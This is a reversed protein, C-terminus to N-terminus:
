ESRGPGASGADPLGSLELSIDMATVSHTLAGISVFDPELEAVARLNEDTIGGSVEIEPPSDVSRALAIADRMQELTMNDLMIRDAGAGMVSAVEDISRAEVEVVLDPHSSRAASVAQAIGGAAEIHNDKILIMDWLGMRHNTAGGVKVAYKELARLGPTTKRTDLVRTRGGGLAATCAAAATAIGSLRQLFNLAVREGTLIGRTGGEITALATGEVVRDGDAVHTTFVLGSDCEAFVARAVDLGAVVGEAKARITGLSEHGAPITSETTVDGTGVDEAVARRVLELINLELTM